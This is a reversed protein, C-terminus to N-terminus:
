SPKQQQRERNTAAVGALEVVLSHMECSRLAYGAVEHRAECEVGVACEDDDVAAAVVVDAVIDVAAVAAVAAAVAAAAVVVAAAAAASPVAEAEVLLLTMKRWEVM